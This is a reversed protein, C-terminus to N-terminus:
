DYLILARAVTGSTMWAFADNVDDLTCTRSVLPDLRLRGRAYLELL